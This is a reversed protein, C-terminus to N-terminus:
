GTRVPPTLAKHGFVFKELFRLPVEGPAHVVGKVFPNEFLGLFVTEFQDTKINL